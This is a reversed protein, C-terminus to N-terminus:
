LSDDITATSDARVEISGTVQKRGHWSLTYRYHGPLIHKATWGGGATAPFLKFRYENRQGTKSVPDSLLHIGISNKRGIRACNKLAVVIAGHKAARVVITYPDRSPLVDRACSHLFQGQGPLAVYVVSGAKFREFRTVQIGSPSCVLRLRGDIEGNVARVAHNRLTIGYKAVPAGSADVVKVRLYAGLDCPVETRAGTVWRVTACNAYNVKITGFANRPVVIAFHGEEDTRSHLLQATTESFVQVEVYPTSMGSKDIVAGHLLMDMTVVFKSRATGTNAPIATRTLETDYSHDPDLAWVLDTPDGILVEANARQVRGQGLQFTALKKSKRPSAFLLSIRRAAIPRAFVSIVTKSHAQLLEYVRREYALELSVKVQRRLIIDQLKTTRSTSLEDTFASGRYGGPAAASATVSLWSAPIEAHYRGDASSSVTIGARGGKPSALQVTAQVPAGTPLRVFGTVQCSATKIPIRTPSHEGTHHGDRPDGVYGPPRVDFPQTSSPLNAMPAASHIEEPTSDREVDPWLGWTVAALIVGFLVSKKMAIVGLSTMGVGGGITAAVGKALQPGAVTILALSWARRRGDNERDLQQRLLDLGRKIRSRVTASSLGLQLAIERSNREEFYRLLLIGRYHEPLSLVANVLQQRIQERELIVDPSPYTEDRAVREERQARALDRRRQKSAIRRTVTSLWARLGGSYRPPSQYARLWAEQVVDDVQSEDSLLSRAIRRITDEQDLLTELM